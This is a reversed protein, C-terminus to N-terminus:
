AQPGPVAPLPRWHTPDGGVDSDEAYGGTQILRWDDHRWEATVMEAPHREGYSCYLLVATGDKPASEIGQWAAQEAAILAARMCDIFEYREPSTDWQEPSGFWATLAANVAEYTPYTM